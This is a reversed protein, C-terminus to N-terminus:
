PYKCLSVDFQVKALIINKILYISNCEYQGVKHVVAHPYGNCWPTIVTKPTRNWFHRFRM